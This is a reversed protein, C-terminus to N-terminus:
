RRKAPGVFLILVSFRCDFDIRMTGGAGIFWTFINLPQGRWSAGEISTCSRYLDNGSHLNEAQWFHVLWSHQNIFANGWPRTRLILNKNSKQSNLGRFLIQFIQVSPYTFYKQWMYKGPLSYVHNIPDPPHKRESMVWIMQNSHTM